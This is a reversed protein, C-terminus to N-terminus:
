LEISNRSFGLFFVFFFVMKKKKSNMFFDLVEDYKLINYFIEIFINCM